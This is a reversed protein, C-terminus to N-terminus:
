FFGVLRYDELIKDSNRMSSYKRIRELPNEYVKKEKFAELARKYMAYAKHQEKKRRKHMGKKNGSGIRFIDENAEANAQTVQFIQKYKKRHKYKSQFKEIRAIENELFLSAGENNVSWHGDEKSFIDKNAFISGKLMNQVKGGIYQTGDTRRLNGINDSLLQLLKESPISKQKQLVSILYGIITNRAIHEPTSSLLYDLRSVKRRRKKIHQDGGLPLDDLSLIININNEEIQFESDSNM